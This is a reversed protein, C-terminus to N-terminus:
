SNLLVFLVSDLKWKSKTCLFSIIKFYVLFTYRIRSHLFIPNNSFLVLFTKEGLSIRKVHLIQWRLISLGPFEFSSNERKEYM